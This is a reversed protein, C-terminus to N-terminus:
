TRSKKVEFTLMDERVRSAEWAPEQYLSLRAWSDCCSSEQSSATGDPVVGETSDLESGTVIGVCPALTIM